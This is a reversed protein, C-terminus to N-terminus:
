INERPVNAESNLRELSGRRLSKYLLYLSQTPRKLTSPQKVIISGQEFGAKLTQIASEAKRAQDELADSFLKRVAPDKLKSSYFQTRPPLELPTANNRLVPTNPKAPLPLHLVISNYDTPPGSNSRLTRSPRPIM